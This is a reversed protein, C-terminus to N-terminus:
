IGQCLDISFFEGAETPQKWIRIGHKIPSLYFPQPHFHCALGHAFDQTLFSRYFNLRKALLDFVSGM